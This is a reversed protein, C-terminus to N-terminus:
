RAGRYVFLFREHPVMECGLGPWLKSHLSFGAIMKTVRLITCHTDRTWCIPHVWCNVTHTLQRQPTFEWADHQTPSIPATLWAMMATIAREPVSEVCHLSFGASQEFLILLHTPFVRCKDSTNVQISHLSKGASQIHSTEDQVQMDYSCM